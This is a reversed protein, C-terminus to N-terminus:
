PKAKFSSLSINMNPTIQELLKQFSNLFEITNKCISQLPNSKVLNLSQAIFFMILSSSIMMQYPKSPYTKNRIPTIVEEEPPLLLSLHNTHNKEILPKQNDFNFRVHYAINKKNNM